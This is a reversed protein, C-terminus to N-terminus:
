YCFEYVNITTDVSALVYGSGSNLVADYYDMATISLLVSTGNGRFVYCSSRTAITDVIQNDARVVTYTSNNSSTLLNNYIKYRIVNDSDLIDSVRYTTSDAATVTLFDRDSLVSGYSTYLDISVKVIRGKEFLYIADERRDITDRIEGDIFVHATTVDDAYCDNYIRIKGTTNENIVSITTDGSPSFIFDGFENAYENDGDFGGSCGLLFILLVIAILFEFRQRV